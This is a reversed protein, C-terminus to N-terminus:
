SARRISPFVSALENWLPPWGRRLMAHTGKDMARFCTAASVRRRILPVGLRAQVDYAANYPLHRSAVYGWVDRKDWAALPSCHWTDGESAVRYLPRHGGRLQIARATSEGGHQWRKGLLGLFVGGYGNLPADKTLSRWEHDWIRPNGWTADPDTALDPRDMANCWDRWPDLSRVRTITTRLRNETADLFALTEPFDLGDDGWLIPLRPCQQWVLDLVVASDVGGSFANYWPVGCALAETIIDVSAALKRVFATSRAHLCSAAREAPTM